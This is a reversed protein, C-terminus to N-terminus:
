SSRRSPLLAVVVLLVGLGIAVIPWWVGPDFAPLIQRVLFFGGLVILVLGAVLGGRARDDRDRRGRHSAPTAGPPVTSGDPAVWGGEAAPADAGVPTSGPDGSRDDAPAYPMGEPRLPVVIAMVVYVLLAIGGTLVILVAWVIRIISPDADINEAVGGAVGAIM